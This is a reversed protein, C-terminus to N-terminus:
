YFFFFVVHLLFYLFPVNGFEAAIVSDNNQLATVTASWVSYHVSSTILVHVYWLVMTTIQASDRLHQCTNVTNEM